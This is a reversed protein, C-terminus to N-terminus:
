RLIVAITDVIPQSCNKDVPHQCSGDPTLQSVRGELAHIVSIQRCPESRAKSPMPIPKGTTGGADVSWWRQGFSALM